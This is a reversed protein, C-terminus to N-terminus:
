PLGVPATSNWVHIWSKVWYSTLKAANEQEVCCVLSTALLGLLLTRKRQVRGLRSMKGSKLFLVIPSHRTSQRSTMTEVKIKLTEIDRDMRFVSRYEAIDEDQLEPILTNSISREERRGIWGWVRCSPSKRRRARRLLVLSTALLGLLRKIKRQAVRKM